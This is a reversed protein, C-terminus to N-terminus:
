LKQIVHLLALHFRVDDTEVSGDTTTLLSALPLVCQLEKGHHLLLLHRGIISAKTSGYTSALLATLPKGTILCVKLRKKQPTIGSVQFRSDPM